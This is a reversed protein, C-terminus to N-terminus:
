MFKHGSTWNQSTIPSTESILLDYYEWTSCLVSSKVPIRNLQTHTHTHYPELDANATPYGFKSPNINVSRLYNEVPKTSLVNTHSCPIRLCRVKLFKVGFYLLM